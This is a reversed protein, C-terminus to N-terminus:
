RITHKEEISEIIKDYKETIISRVENKHYAEVYVFDNYGSKFNVKYQKKNRM